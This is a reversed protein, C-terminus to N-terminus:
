GATGAETPFADLDLSLSPDDWSVSLTERELRCFVATPLPGDSAGQLDSLYVPPALRARPCGPATVRGLHNHARHPKSGSYRVSESRPAPTEVSRFCTLPLSSVCPPPAETSPQPESGRRCAATRLGSAAPRKTPPPSQQCRHQGCPTVSQRAANNGQPGGGGGAGGRGM